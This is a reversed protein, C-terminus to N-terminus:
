QCRPCRAPKVGPPYTQLRSGKGLQGAGSTSTHDLNEAGTSGSRGTHSLLRAAPACLPHSGRRRRRPCRFPSSSLPQGAPSVSDSWVAGVSHPFPTRANTSYTHPTQQQREAQGGECMCVPAVCHVHLGPGTLHDSGMAAAVLVLDLLSRLGDLTGAERSLDGAGGPGHGGADVGGDYGLLPPTLHLWTHFTLLALNEWVECSPAAACAVFHLGCLHGSLGAWRSVLLLSRHHFYKCLVISRHLPSSRCESPSRYPVLLEKMKRLLDPFRHSLLCSESVTVMVKFVASHGQDKGASSQM